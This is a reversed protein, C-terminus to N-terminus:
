RAPVPQDTGPRGALADALAWEQEATIGLGAPGGRPSYRGDCLALPSSPGAKGGSLPSRGRVGWSPGDWFCHDLLREAVEPSAEESVGVTWLAESTRALAEAEPVDADGFAPLLLLLRLGPDVVGEAGAPASETVAVLEPWSLGPGSYHGDLSALYAHRDWDPHTILYDTGADDPFNRQVIWLV